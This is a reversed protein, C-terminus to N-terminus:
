ELLDGHESDRAREDEVQDAAKAYQPQPGLFIAAAPDGKTAGPPGITGIAAAAIIRHSSLM